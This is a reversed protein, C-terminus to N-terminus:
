IARAAIDLAKVITSDPVKLLSKSHTDTEKKAAKWRNILRNVLTELEPKQVKGGSARAIPQPQTAMTLYNALDHADPDSIQSLQNVANPLASTPM